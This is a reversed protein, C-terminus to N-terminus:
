LEETCKRTPRSLTTRRCPVMRGTVTKCRRDTSKEAIREVLDKDASNHSLFIDFTEVARPGRLFILSQKTIASYDPVLVAQSHEPFGTNEGSLVRSPGEPM